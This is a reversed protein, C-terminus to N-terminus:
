IGLHKKIEAEESEGEAIKLLKAKIWEKKQSEGSEKYHDYLKLMPVVYNLNIQKVRDASVDQFFPKDIYDLAYQQEFNRKLLAINDLPTKSYQHALGTLYVNEEIDSLYDGCTTLAIYVPYNKKNSALHKVIGKEYVKQCDTVTTDKMWDWKEVGLEKFLKERYEDIWLVSTNVVTVDRRIGQAQLLWMPYTDNDGSTLVIANPKLSMLVNYSYYMLGPSVKDEELWKKSYEDRMSINREAEAWVIVCEIHQTHGEGLEIAKKLYKVSDFNNGEHSWKCINYEYSGPVQREMEALLKTVGEVKESRPRKDTTDLALLNRNVRYYNYWANADKPNADVAKKWAKAQERYWPLPRLTKAFGYVPEPKQGFGNIVFTIIIGILLLINKM